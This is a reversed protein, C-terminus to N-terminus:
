CKLVVHQKVFPTALLHLIGNAFLGAQMALGAKTFRLHNLDFALEFAENDGRAVESEDESSECLAPELSQDGSQDQRYWFFGEVAHSLHLFAMTPRCGWVGDTAVHQNPGNYILMSLALFIRTLNNKSM